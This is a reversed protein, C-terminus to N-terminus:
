QQLDSLAIEQKLKEILMPLLDNYKNFVHSYTSEIFIRLEQEKNLKILQYATELVYYKDKEEVKFNNIRLNLKETILERYKYETKEDTIYSTQIADKLLPHAISILGNQSILYKQLYDELHHYDFKFLETSLLEIDAIDILDESKLGFGTLALASLYTQIQKQGYHKELLKLVGLMFDNQTKASLLLDIEKDLLEFTGFRLLEDLISNLIFMNECLHHTAIKKIQAETLKKGYLALYDAIHVERQQESMSKIETISATIECDEIAFSLAKNTNITLIVKPRRTLSKYWEWFQTQENSTYEDYRTLVLLKISKDNVGPEFQSIIENMALRHYNFFHCAIHEKELINNNYLYGELLASKGVGQEGKLILIQTNDQLLFDEIILENEKIPTYIKLDAYSQLEVKNSSTQPFYLDIYRTFIEKIKAGMKEPDLSHYIPYRGDNIIDRMLRDIRGAETIAPLIPMCMRTAFFLANIRETRRLVGYLIEMETYSKGQKIDQEIWPYKKRLIDSKLFDEIQPVTGYKNGIIGIFFPNASDIEQFCRELIKRSMAEEETVGWRLDIPIFSVNREKALKQLEPFTHRILYDREAQMDQFTSSIFVKIVRNKISTNENEVKDNQVFVVEKKSQYSLIRAYFFGSLALTAYVFSIWWWVDYAISCLPASYLTSPCILHIVMNCLGFFGHWIGDFWGYVVTSKIPFLVVIIFGPITLASVKLLDMIILHMPHKGEEKAKTKILWWINSYFELPTGGKRHM